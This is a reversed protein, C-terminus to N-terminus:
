GDIVYCGANQPHDIVMADGPITRIVRLVMLDGVAGSVLIAGSMTLWGTNTLTGIIVPIIGTIILPLIVGIRYGGAPMAVMSHAYPSLTKWAIGFRIKQVPVGAFVIWGLAHVAEHAVILVVFAIFGLLYNPGNFGFTIGWKLAHPILPVVTLIISLPLAQAMITDLPVSVDRM